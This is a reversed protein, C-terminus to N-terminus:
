KMRPRRQRDGSRVTLPISNADRYRQGTIWAVAFFTFTGSAFGLAIMGPISVLIELLKM